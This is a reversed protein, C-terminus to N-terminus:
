RIVQDARLVISQPIIIDLAEATKQNVSLRFNTPREVPLQGPKAGRLIKAVLSASREWAETQDPGYSLFGGAKAFPPAMSTAPLKYKMTLEALRESRAWLMPSPLIILAQPWGRLTLFAPELDAPRHVNIVRVAIGFHETAAQVAELHVAGPAPDFLVAVRSLGPMLEKLLEVWKFSFTPADLFFGTLNGGPRAYSQVYGAAVPDNTFDLGVIPIKDTADFAARTAPANDTVIVDVNLGVLEAASDDYQPPNGRVSRY